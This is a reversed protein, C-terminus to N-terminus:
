FFSSVVAYSVGTFIGVIFFSVIVKSTLACETMLLIIFLHFLWLEMNWGLNYPSTGTHRCHPRPAHTPTAGHHGPRGAGDHRVPLQRAHGGTAGRRGRFEDDGWEQHQDCAWSCDQHCVTMCTYSCVIVLHNNIFCKEYILNFTMLNKNSSFLM